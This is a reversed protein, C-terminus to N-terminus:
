IYKCKHTYFKGLILIKNVLLDRENNDMILGYIIDEQSFPELRIMYILGSHKLLCGVNFFYIILHKLIM